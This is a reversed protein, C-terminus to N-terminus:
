CRRGQCRWFRRHWDRGRWRRGPISALDGSVRDMALLRSQDLAQPRALGQKLGAADEVIGAAGFFRTVGEILGGRFSGGRCLGLRRSRWRKWSWGLRGSRASLFAKAKGVYDKADTVRAGYIVM